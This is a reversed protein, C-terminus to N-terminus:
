GFIRDGQQDVILQGKSIALAACEGKDTFKDARIFDHVKGDKSVRGALQFQGGDKFPRAEILFGKYEVSQMPREDAAPASSFWKSWFAM